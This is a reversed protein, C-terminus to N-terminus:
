RQQKWVSVTNKKWQRSIWFGDNCGSEGTGAEIRVNPHHESGSRNRDVAVNGAQEIAAAIPDDTFDLEKVEMGTIRKITQQAQRVCVQVPQKPPNSQTLIYALWTTTIWGWSLGKQLGHRHLHNDIISALGLRQMIEVLLPFDDVWEMTINM